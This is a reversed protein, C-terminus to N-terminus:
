LLVAITRGNLGVVEKRLFGQQFEEYKRLAAAATEARVMFSREGDTEQWCYPEVAGDRVYWLIM